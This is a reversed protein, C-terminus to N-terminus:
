NKSTGAWIISGIESDEDLKENILENIHGISYEFSIFYSFPDQHNNQARPWM